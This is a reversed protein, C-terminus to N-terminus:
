EPDAEITPLGRAAADEGYFRTEPGYYPPGGVCGTEPNPHPGGDPCDCCCVCPGDHGRQFSCGHSGWYVRCDNRDDGDAM